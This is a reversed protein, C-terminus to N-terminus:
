KFLAARSLESIHRRGTFSLEVLQTIKGCYFYVSIKPLPEFYATAKLKQQHQQSGGNQHCPDLELSQTSAEEELKREEQFRKVREIREAKLIEEEKQRQAVDAEVRANTSHFDRDIQDLLWQFGEKIAGDCKPGM